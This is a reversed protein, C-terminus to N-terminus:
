QNREPKVGPSPYLSTIGGDGSNSEARALYDIAKFLVGTGKDGQLAGIGTNCQMCLLGRVKGTVHNHDVALSFESIQVGCLDCKGNQKVFMERRQEFTIGYKRLCHASQRKELYYKKQYESRRKKEFHNRDNECITCASLLGDKSYKNRHFDSALKMKKCRCCRKESVGPKEATAVFFKYKSLCERCACKRGSTQGKDKWFESLEKAEGCKSCQKM